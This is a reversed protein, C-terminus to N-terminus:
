KPVGCKEETKELILRDELLSLSHALILVFVLLLGCFCSFYM